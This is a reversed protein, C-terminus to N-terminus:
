FDLEELEKQQSAISNELERIRSEKKAESTQAEVAIVLKFAWDIVAERAAKPLDIISAILAKEEVNLGKEEALLDLFSKEPPPNFMEGEGTELWRPNVNFIRCILEFNRPSLVTEGSEIHGIARQTIKIKKGFAAQSLKLFTRLEKVRENKTEM